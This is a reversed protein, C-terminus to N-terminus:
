VVMQNMEFIPLLIALVILLVIGGMMLVMLPEFVSLIKRILNELTHEQNEAAKNLMHSLQGSAEGSALMYLTMSPLAKQKDMAQYISSGERVSEGAKEIAHKMPIFNLVDGANKIADLVPTGSDHLLAFTRAFRAANAGIILTKIFPLLVVLQQMKKKFALNRIGVKIIILITALAILLNSWQAQLYDSMAIVMDTLPPLKQNQEDFISVIQPVVFVLLYSVVTLAVLSIFVPYVMAANIKKKFQDQNEIDTALKDLVHGLKGSREGAEITAIVYAPFQSRSQQFAVALSLGELVKMRIENIMKSFSKSDSNRAITSLAEDLPMATQTLSALQRLFLAIDAVKVPKTFLFQFRNTKAQTEHIEIVNLKQARLQARVGKASDGEAIGKLTKGQGDIAQYEFMM